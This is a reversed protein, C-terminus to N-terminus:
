DTALAIGSRHWHTALQRALRRAPAKSTSQWHRALQKALAVLTAKRIGPLNSCLFFTGRKRSTDQTAKQSRIKNHNHYSEVISFTLIQLNSYRLNFIHVIRDLIESSYPIRGISEPRANIIISLMLGVIPESVYLFSRIREVRQLIRFMEFCRSVLVKSDLSGFSDDM